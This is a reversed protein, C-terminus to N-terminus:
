MNELMKFMGTMQNRCDNIVSVEEDTTEEKKEDFLWGLMIYGITMGDDHIPALIMTKYNMSQYLPRSPFDFDKVSDIVLIEEPHYFMRQSIFQTVTTSLRSMQAILSPYNDKVSEYKAQQYSYCIGGLSSEGNSYLFVHAIHADMRIRLQKLTVDIERNIPLANKIKKYTAKKKKKQTNVFRGIISKALAQAVGQLVVFIVFLIAIMILSSVFGGGAHQQVFSAISKFDIGM